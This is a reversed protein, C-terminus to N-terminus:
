HFARLRTSSNPHWELTDAWTVGPAQVGVVDRLASLYDAGVAVFTPERNEVGAQVFPVLYSLFQDLDAHLLAPHELTRTQIKSNTRVTEGDV